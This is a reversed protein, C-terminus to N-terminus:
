ALQKGSTRGGWPSEREALATSDVILLEKGQDGSRMLSTRPACLQFVRNRRAFMYTECVNTYTPRFRM